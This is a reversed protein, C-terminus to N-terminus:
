GAPVGPTGPLRGAELHDKLATVQRKWALVRREPERAAARGSAAPRELRLYLHVITGDRWPELWLEATGRVPATVAWQRGKAGRDRSTELTLDPWWAAWRGPDAVAAAVLAPAAAVFTDDSVHVPGLPTM